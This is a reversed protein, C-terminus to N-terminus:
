FCVVIVLWSSSKLPLGYSHFHTNLHLLKKYLNGEPEQAKGNAGSCRLLNVCEFLFRNEFFFGVFKCLM